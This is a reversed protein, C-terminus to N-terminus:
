AQAELERILPLLERDLLEDSLPGVHKFRVRGQRDIVFTEPTAYVGWEIGARGQDDFGVRQYPNGHRRLYRLAAERQDKYNLGIVSVGERSLRLLAPHEVRCSVCWSAWVNFVLPGQAALDASSLTLEPRALDSVEFSPVAQGLLPSPLSDDDRGLGVALLAVLSVFLLVPILRGWAM